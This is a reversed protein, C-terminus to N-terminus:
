APCIECRTRIIMPRLTLENLMVELEENKAQMSLIMKNAQQVLDEGCLSQAAHRCISAVEEALNSDALEVATISAQEGFLVQAHGDAVVKTHVLNYGEEPKGAIIGRWVAEVVGRAMDETVDKQESNKIRDILTPEQHNLISMVVEKAEARLKALIDRCANWDQGWEELVQWRVKEHTHDKLSQLIMENQRVIRQQEKEPRSRFPVPPESEELIDTMLLDSLVKKASRTEDFVMSTPLRDVLVEAIWIIYEIHERFAETAVQVRAAKLEELSKNREWDEYARKATRRPVGTKAQINLWSAGAHKLKIVQNLEEDSVHRRRM